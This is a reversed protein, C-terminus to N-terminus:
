GLWSTLGLRERMTKKHEIELAALKGSDMTAELTAKVKRLMSLYTWIKERGEQDRAPSTKWQEILESEIASFADQFAENELVERARAGAIHRQELSM